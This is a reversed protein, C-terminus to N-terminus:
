AIVSDLVEQSAGLLYVPWSREASLAVLRDMLDIGAVREPVQLGAARAAWVVSQGDANVIDANGISRALVQDDHSAVLKAANVVVHQAFRRSEILAECVQVSEQMTLM